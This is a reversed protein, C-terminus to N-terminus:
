DSDFDMLPGAAASAGAPPPLPRAQPVTAVASPAPAGSSAGAAAAGGLLLPLTREILAAKPGGVKAGRLRLFAKLHRVECAGRLAAETPAAGLVVAALRADESDGASRPEASPATGAIARPPPPPEAATPPHSGSSAVRNGANGCSNASFSFFGGGLSGHAATGGTLAAASLSDRQRKSGNAGMSVPIPNPTATPPATKGGGGRGGANSASFSFFGGGIALDRTPVAAVAPAGAPQPLAVGRAGPLELPLPQRPAPLGREAGAATMFAICGEGCPGASVVGGEGAGVGDRAFSSPIPMASASLLTCTCLTVGGSLFADGSPRPFAAPLLDPRANGLWGARAVLEGWTWLDHAPARTRLDESVAAVAITDRGLWSLFPNAGAGGRARQMLLAATAESALASRPGKQVKADARHARLLSASCASPQLSAASCSEDDESSSDLDFNTVVQRHAARAWEGAAPSSLIASAAVCSASEGSAGAGSDDSDSDLSLASVHVAKKSTAASNVGVCQMAQRGAPYHRLTHTKKPRTFLKGSASAAAAAGVLSTSLASEVPQSTAHGSMAGLTARASRFSAPALALAGTGPSSAEQLVNSRGPLACSQHATVRAVLPVTLEPVSTSLSAGAGGSDVFPLLLKELVRPPGSAAVPVCGSSILVHQVLSGTEGWDLLVAAHAILGSFLHNCTAAAHTRSATRLAVPVGVIAAAPLVLTPAGTMPGGARLAPFDGELTSVGLGYEDAGGGGGRTTSVISRRAATEGAAGALLVRVLQLSAAPTSPVRPLVALVGLLRALLAHSSDDLRARVPVGDGLGARITPLGAIPVPKSLAVKDHTGQPREVPDFCYGLDVNRQELPTLGGAFEGAPLVSVPILGPLAYLPPLASEDHCVPGSVNTVLSQVEASISLVMGTAGCSAVRIVASHAHAANSIGSSPAHQFWQLLSSGCVAWGLKVAACAVVCHLAGHLLNVLGASGTAPTACLELRGRVSRRTLPVAACLSRLAM